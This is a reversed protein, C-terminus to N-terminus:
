DKSHKRKEIRRRLQDLFKEADVGWGLDEEDDDIEIPVIPGNKVSPTNADYYEIQSWSMQELAACHDYHPLKNLLEIDLSGDEKIPIM